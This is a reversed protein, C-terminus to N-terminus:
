KGQRAGAGARATQADGGYGEACFISDRALSGGQPKVSSQLRERPQESTPTEVQRPTSVRIYLAGRLTQRRAGFSGQLSSHWAPPRDPVTGQLLGPYARDWRQPGDRKGVGRRAVQWHPRRPEEACQVKVRLIAWLTGM